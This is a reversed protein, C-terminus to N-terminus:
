TAEGFRGVLSENANWDALTGSYNIVEINPCNKFAAVSGTLPQVYINKNLFTVTKLSSCGTFAGGTLNTFASHFEIEKIATGQCFYGSISTTGLPINIEQLNSCNWFATSITRISDPLHVKTLGTCRGFALYGIGMVGEPIVIKELAVHNFCTYNEITNTTAGKVSYGLFKLEKITTEQPDSQSEGIILRKVTTNPDYLKITHIGAKPFTYQMRQIISSNDRPLEEKGLQFEVSNDIKISASYDYISARMQQNFKPTAYM